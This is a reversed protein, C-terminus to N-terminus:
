KSEDYVDNADSSWNPYRLRDLLPKEEGPVAHVNVFPRLEIETM